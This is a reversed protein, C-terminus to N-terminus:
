HFRVYSKDYKKFIIRQIYGQNILLDNEVKVANFFKISILGFM